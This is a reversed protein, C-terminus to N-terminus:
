KQIANKKEKKKKKKNLVKKIIKRKVGSDLSSKMRGEAISDATTRPGQTYEM